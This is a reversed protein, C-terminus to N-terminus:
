VTSQSSGAIVHVVAAHVLDELTGAFLDSSGVKAEVVEAVRAGRHRSLGAGGHAFEHVSEPVRRWLSGQDILVGRCVTLGLKGSAQRPHSECVRCAMSWGM